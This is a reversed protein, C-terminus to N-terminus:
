LQASFFFASMSIRIVVNLDLFLSLFIICGILIHAFYSLQSCLIYGALQLLAIGYFIWVPCPPRPYVQKKSFIGLIELNTVKGKSIGSWSLVFSGQQFNWMNSEEQFNQLLFGLGRFVGCLKKKIMGPFEVEKKILGQLNWKSNRQYVRGGQFNRTMEM